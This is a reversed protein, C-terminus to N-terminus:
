VVGCAGFCLRMLACVKVVGCVVGDWCVGEGGGGCWGMGCVNVVWVCAGGWVGSWGLM